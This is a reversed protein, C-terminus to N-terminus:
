KYFNFVAEYQYSDDGRSIPVLFIDFEGMQEHKLRYTQQSLRTDGPGRFIISFGKVGQQEQQRSKHPQVEILEVEIKRDSDTVHFKTNLNKSFEQETLIAEM